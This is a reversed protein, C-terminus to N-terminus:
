LTTYGGSISLTQGTVWSSAEGAFYLVANAHDQPDGLRGLPYVKSIKQELEPTLEFGIRSSFNSGAFTSGPSICNVTVHNRGVEKALAKTFGIVSAKTASYVACLPEGVRGADSATNIIRGYGREVMGPLVARTCNLTGRLIVDIELDWTKPDSKAFPITPQMLGANNCLVDIAGLESEIRAAAAFTADLDVIDLEVALGRRGLEEVEGAVQKARGEDLDIVAVDSGNAALTLCIARGIGSGGGTVAAVRGELAFQNTLSM